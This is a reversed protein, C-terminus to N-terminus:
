LRRTFQQEQHNWKSKRDNKDAQSSKNFIQVLSININTTSKASIQYVNYTCAHKQREKVDVVFIILKCDILKLVNVPLASHISNM